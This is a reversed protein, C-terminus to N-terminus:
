VGRARLELSSPTCRRTRCAGSRLWRAKEGLRRGVRSGSAWEHIHHGGTTPDYESGAPDRSRGGSGACPRSAPRGRAPSCRSCERSKGVAASSSDGPDRAGGRARGRATRAARPRTARYRRAPPAPARHAAPVPPAEPVGPAPPSRRLPVARRTARWDQPTRPSNSAPPRSDRPPPPRLRVLGACRRSGSRPRARARRCPRRRGRTGPAASVRPRM